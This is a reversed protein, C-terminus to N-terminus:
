DIRRPAVSTVLRVPPLNFDSTMTDAGTDDPQLTLDITARRLRPGVDFELTFICEEVRRLLTREVTNILVGGDYHEITARLEYPGTAPPAAIREIRWIQRITGFPDPTTEFEIVNTQIVPTIIPNVPYPGFKDGTRILTALRHTVLRGVVHTSVSESTARYGDFATRLAVMTASLLTGSIAIAVLMEIISFGRANMRRQNM